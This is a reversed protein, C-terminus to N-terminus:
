HVAAAADVVENVTGCRPCKLVLDRVQEIRMSAILTTECIACVHDTDGDGTMIPAHQGIVPHRRGRTWDPVAQMKRRLM